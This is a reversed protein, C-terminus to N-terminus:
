CDLSLTTPHAGKMGITYCYETSDSELMVVWEANALPDIPVSISSVRFANEAGDAQKSQLFAVIASYVEPWLAVIQAYNAHQRDMSDNASGDVLVEIETDTPDFRTRGEWYKAIDGMYLMAGFVEDTHKKHKGIGLERYARRLAVIFAVIFAGNLIAGGVFVQWPVSYALRFANMM